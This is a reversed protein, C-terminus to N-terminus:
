FYNCGVSKRIIIEEEMNFQINQYQLSMLTNTIHYYFIFGWEFCPNVQFVVMMLLYWM